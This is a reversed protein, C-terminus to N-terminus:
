WSFRIREHNITNFELWTSGMMVQPETETKATGMEVCPCFKGDCDKAYIYGPLPISVITGCSGLSQGGWWIYWGRNEGLYMLGTGDSGHQYYRADPIIVGNSTAKINSLKRWFHGTDDTFALFTYLGIISTLTAISTYAIIRKMAEPYYM